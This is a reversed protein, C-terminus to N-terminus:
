LDFIEMLRILFNQVPRKRLKEYDNKLSRPLAYIKSCACDFLYDRIPRHRLEGGRTDWLNNFISVVIIIATDERITSGAIVSTHFFGQTQYVIFKYLDEGHRDFLELPADKNIADGLLIVLHEDSYQRMDDMMKVPM